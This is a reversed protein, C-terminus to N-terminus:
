GTDTQREEQGDTRGIPRRHPTPDVIAGGQNLNNVCKGSILAKRAPRVGMGVGKGVGMGVGM